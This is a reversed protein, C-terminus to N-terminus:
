DEKGRDLLKLALEQSFLKAGNSNLHSVNYFLEKKYCISDNSFNFFSLNNTNSMNEFIKIIESRNSVFNQGEIYEPAYVLILEVENKKCENIFSKFLDVSEQDIDIKLRNIRNKANSFDQNWKKDMATFGNSRLKEKKNYGFMEELSYKISKTEGIYRTLPVFYEIINFGNYVKTYKYADKNWLMYPLFQSYNYLDKRKNLTFVDVSLIIKKPKENYKLYELNRFYQLFFSHGDIGFNYASLNIKDEIIKPDIHVWARSSGMIAIDCNIESNYINTWVEYEGLAVRNKNSLFFSIGFDIPVSLVIIPLFYFIFLKKLFKRM